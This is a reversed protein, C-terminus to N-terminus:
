VVSPEALSQNTPDARLLLAFFLFFGVGISREFTNEVLFSLAMCTYLLWALPEHKLGYWFPLLWGLLFMLLGIIGSRALVLVFQNHPLRDDIKPHESNLSKEKIVSLVDGGGVGFIPHELWVEMARKINIWRNSDSFHEQGSRWDYLSYGWKARLTPIFKVATLGSVVGTLLIVLTIKYARTRFGQYILIAALLLYTVVLGSRVALFHMLGFLLLAGVLLGRKHLNNDKKLYLWIASLVAYSNFLSFKVHEIPTYVAGGRSIKWVIQDHQGDMVDVFLVLATIILIVLFWLHLRIVHDRDLKPLATFFLPLFLFPLFIRMQEAWAPFYATNWVSMLVGAWLIAYFWSAAPVISRIRMWSYISLIGWAIYCFSIGAKSYILVTLFVVSISWHVTYIHRSKSLPIM